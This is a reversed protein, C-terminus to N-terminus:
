APLKGLRLSESNIVHAVMRYEAIEPYCIGFVLVTVLDRYAVVLMRHVEAGAEIKFGVLKAGAFMDFGYDM